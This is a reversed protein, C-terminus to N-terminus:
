LRIFFFVIYPLVRSGFTKVNLLKVGCFACKTIFEMLFAWDCWCSCFWSSISAKGAEWHVWEDWHLIWLRRTITHPPDHWPVECCDNPYLGSNFSALRAWLDLYSNGLGTNWNETLFWTQQWMNITLFYLGSKYCLAWATRADTSDNTRLSLLNLMTGFGSIKQVNVNM